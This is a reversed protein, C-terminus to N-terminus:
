DVWYVASGNRQNKESLSRKFWRYRIYRYVRSYFPWYMSNTLSVWEIYAYHIISNYIQNIQQRRAADELCDDLDDTGICTFLEFMIENLYKDAYVTNDALIRLFEERTNKDLDSFDLPLGRHAKWYIATIPNFLRDLREKKANRRVTLWDSFRAFFFGLIVSAVAIIIKIIDDTTIM